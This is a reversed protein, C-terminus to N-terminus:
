IAFAFMGELRKICDYGWAHWAKLLVETDSDSVFHYGKTELLRRLERFNYIAGNFVLALGLTHDVMPQAARDSLDFIKLRRQGLAIHNLQYLGEGDPGRHRQSQNIREIRSISPTGSGFRLEGAIGCM